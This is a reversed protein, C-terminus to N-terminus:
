RCASCNSRTSYTCFRNTIRTCGPVMAAVDGGGDAVLQLSSTAVPRATTVPPAALMLTALVAVIAVWRVIKM